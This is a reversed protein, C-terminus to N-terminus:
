LKTASLISFDDTKNMAKLGGGFNKWTAKSCLKLM